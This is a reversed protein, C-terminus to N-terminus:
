YYYTLIATTNGVLSSLPPSPFFASFFFFLFNISDTSLHFPLPFHSLHFFLSPSLVLHTLAHTHKHQTTDRAIVILFTALQFTDGGSAASASLLIGVARKGAFFSCVAVFQHFTSLVCDFVCVSDLSHEM